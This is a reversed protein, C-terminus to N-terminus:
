LARGLKGLYGRSILLLFAVLTIYDIAGRYGEGIFHAGIFELVGLFFGAYLCGKMNGLGGIIMVVFAKILFPFGMTPTIVHLIGALSGAIGALATGLGFCILSLREANISMLMGAERDQTIARIAKGPYTRKLFFDLVLIISISIGLVIIRNVSINFFLFRLPNVLYTVVRYDATWLVLATNQFVILIGFFAILTGREVLPMLGVRELPMVIVKYILLGLLFMLPATVVISVLPSVKALTFLWFMVYGSIMLFEGHAINLIKMVGYILSLGSAVLAYLGGEVLGFAALQLFMQYNFEM